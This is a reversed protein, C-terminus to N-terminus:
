SSPRLPAPPPGVSTSERAEDIVKLQKAVHLKAAAEPDEPDARYRVANKDRLWPYDRNTPVSVGEACGSRRM